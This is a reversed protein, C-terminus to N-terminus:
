ELITTRPDAGRAARMNVVSGAFSSLGRGHFFAGHVLVQQEVIARVDSLMLPWGFAQRDEKTLLDSMFVAGAAAFKSRADPDREDTAVFFPDEARPPPFATPEPDPQAGEIDCTTLNGHDHLDALLFRGAQLREKVRRVHVAPNVHISWGMPLVAELISISPTEADCIREWGCDAKLAYVCVPPYFKLLTSYRTDRARDEETFRMAGPKTGIHTEGALVVVDADVDHYDDRFGRISSRPVVEKLHGVITKAFDADLVPPFTHLVEWGHANLLEEVARDDNLNVGRGLHSSEVCKKATYWSIAFNQWRAGEALSSSLETPELFPWYQTRGDYNDPGPHRELEGEETTRLSSYHHRRQKTRRLPTPHTHYSQRLWFGSSSEIEPNQGHLRLYESATIVPQRSRLHTMNVIVSIPIRFGMTEKWKDSRTADGLNVMPVYNACVTIHVRVLTRLRVFTFGLHSQATRGSPSCGRRYIADTLLDNTASM